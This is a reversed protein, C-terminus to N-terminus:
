NEPPTDIIEGGHVAEAYVGHLEPDIVNALAIMVQDAGAQLQATKKAGSVPPLTFLKGVKIRVNLRRFRLLQKLAVEGSLGVPLIPANTRSALYAIGPKARMMKGTKSRTGEPAVALIGGNNLVETAAKLSRRDVEGRNVFITGVSRLVWGVFFVNEWKDAAFATISPFRLSILTTPSDMLSRHNIAVIYPGSKPMNELGEVTIKTIFFCIIRFIVLVLRYRFTPM